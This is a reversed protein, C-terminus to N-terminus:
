NNVLLEKQGFRAQISKSIPPPPPASTPAPKEGWADASSEKMGGSYQRQIFPNTSTHQPTLKEQSSKPTYGKPPGVKLSEPLEKPPPTEKEDEEEEEDDDSWPNDDAQAPEPSRLQNHADQMRFPPPNTTVLPTTPYPLNAAPALSADAPLPKRTVM